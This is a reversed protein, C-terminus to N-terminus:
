PPSATQKSAKAARESQDRLWLSISYAMGRFQATLHKSKYYDDLQGLQGLSLEDEYYIYIKGTFVLDSSDSNSLDVANGQKVELSQFKDFFAEYRDAISHCIGFTDSSKPVYVSLFKSNTAPDQWVKYEITSIVAGKSDRIEASSGLALYPFDHSFLNHLTQPEDRTPAATPSSSNDERPAVILWLSTALVGGIAFVSLLTILHTRWAHTRFRRFVPTHALLCGFCWYLFLLAFSFRLFISEPPSVAWLAIAFLASLVTLWETKSLSRWTFRQLRMINPITAELWCPPLTPSTLLNM